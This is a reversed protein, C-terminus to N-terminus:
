PTYPAFTQHMLEMFRSFLKLSEHVDKWEQFKKFCENKSQM